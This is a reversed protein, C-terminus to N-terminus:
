EKPEAADCFIKAFEIAQHSLGAAEEATPTREHMALWQVILRSFIDQAHVRMETRFM